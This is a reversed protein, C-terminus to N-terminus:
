HESQSKKMMSEIMKDSPSDGKRIGMFTDDSSQLKKLNM